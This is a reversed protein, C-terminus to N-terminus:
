NLEVFSAAMTGVLVIGLGPLGVLLMPDDTSLLLAVGAAIGIFTSPHM